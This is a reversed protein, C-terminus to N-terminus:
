KSQNAEVNLRKEQHLIRNRVYDVVTRKGTSLILENTNSSDLLEPFNKELEVLHAQTWKVPNM